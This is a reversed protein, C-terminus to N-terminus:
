LYKLYFSDGVDIYEGDNTIIADSIVQEGGGNIPYNNTLPNIGPLQLGDRELFIVNDYTPDLSPIVVKPIQPRIDVLTSNAPPLPRIHKRL